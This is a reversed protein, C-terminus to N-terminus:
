LKMTHFPVGEFLDWSLAVDKGWRGIFTWTSDEIWAVTDFSTAMLRIERVYLDVFDKIWMDAGGTSLRIKLHNALGYSFEIGHDPYPMPNQGIGPPLQPTGDNRRALNFYTYARQDGRENDDINPWDLNLRAVENGDRLVTAQILDDTGAYPADKTGVFLKIAGIWM